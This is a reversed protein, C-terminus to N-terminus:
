PTAQQLKRAVLSAVKGGDAKGKLKAMVKGIIPGPSQPNPNEILIEDIVKEIDSDSSMEPLYSQIIQIQKEEKELVDNKASKKMVEIAEKRKKLEKQLLSIVEEDKLEVKKEIEEYKISSLIYRLVELRVQDRDKLAQIMQEHISTRLM